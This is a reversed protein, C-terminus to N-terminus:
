FANKVINKSLAFANNYAVSCFNKPIKSHLSQKCLLRLKREEAVAGHMARPLRERRQEVEGMRPTTGGADMCDHERGKGADM